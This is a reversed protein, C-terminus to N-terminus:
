LTWTKQNPGLPMCGDFKGPIPLYELAETAGIKSTFYGTTALEKIMFFFPISGKKAKRAADGELMCATLVEKKQIETAEVFGKGTKTKCDVDLKTLGAYFTEQDAKTYCDQVVNIIFKEAGAAKAGPTKTTPIIVDAISAILTTQDATFSVFTGNNTKQGMIGAMAPASIMGGMLAAVRQVAERRNINM